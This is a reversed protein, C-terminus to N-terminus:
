AVARNSCNTSDLHDFPGTQGHMFRVIPSPKKPSSLHRVPEGVAFEQGCKVCHVSQITGIM